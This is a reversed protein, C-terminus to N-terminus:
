QLPEMRPSALIDFYDHMPLERIYNSLNELPILRDKRLRFLHYSYKSLWSELQAINIKADNLETPAVELILNPHEDTQVALWKELGELVAMEFGQVDIKILSVRFGSQKRLIRSLTSVHATSKVVNEHKPGPFYCRHDGPHRPNFYFDIEGEVAGAAQEFVTVNNLGLAALKHCHERCPEIALM